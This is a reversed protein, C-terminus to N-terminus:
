VENFIIMREQMEEEPDRDWIECAFEFPDDVEKAILESSGALSEYIGCNEGLDEDAYKVCMEQEPYLEALKRYVPLPIANITDFTFELVTEKNWLVWDFEEFDKAIGWKEEKEAEDAVPIFKNFNLPEDGYKLDEVLAKMAEPTGTFILKNRIYRDM